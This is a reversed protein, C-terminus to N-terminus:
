DRERESGREGPSYREGKRECESGHRRERERERTKEVNLERESQM